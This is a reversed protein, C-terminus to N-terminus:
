SPVILTKSKPSALAYSTDRSASLETDGVRVIISPLRKSLAGRSTRAYDNARQIQRNLRAVAIEHEITGLRFAISFYEKLLEAGDHLLSPDGLQIAQTELTGLAAEIAQTLERPLRPHDSM